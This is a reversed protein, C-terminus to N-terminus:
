PRFELVSRATVVPESSTLAPEHKCLQTPETGRIFYEYRVKQCREGAILGTEADIRVAIVTSPAEGLPQRLEARRSARKMFETWIPLASSAGEIELDANDDYGVWVVCILNSVYGAFWGDRSTGTKGAAAVNFGRAHVDAATGSRLVEALLDQMIFAVAPSLVPRVEGPVPSHADAKEPV